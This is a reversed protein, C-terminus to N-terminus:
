TMPQPTTTAVPVEPPTRPQLGIPEAGSGPVQGPAPSPLGPPVNRQPAEPAALPHAPESYPNAPSPQLTTSGVQPTPTQV